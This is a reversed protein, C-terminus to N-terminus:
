KNIYPIKIERKRLELFLIIIYFINVIPIFSIIIGIIGCTLSTPLPKGDKYTFLHLIVTLCLALLTLM